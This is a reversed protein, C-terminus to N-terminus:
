HHEGAATPRVHPAADACSPSRSCTMTVPERMARGSKSEALGITETVFSSKWRLPDFVTSDASL